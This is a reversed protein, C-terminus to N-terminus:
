TQCTSVSAEASLDTQLWVKLDHAELESKGEERIRAGCILELHGASNIYRLESGNKKIWKKAIGDSCYIAPSQERLAKCLKYATAHVAVLDKVLAGHKEQLEDTSSVTIADAPKISKRKLWQELVGRPVDIPPHRQLLVTRLADQGTYDAYEARVLNGHRKESRAATISAM